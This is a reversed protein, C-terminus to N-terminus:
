TGLTTIRSERLDPHGSYWFGLELGPFFHLCVMFRMEDTAIGVHGCLFFAAFIGIAPRFFASFFVILGIAFLRELAHHPM